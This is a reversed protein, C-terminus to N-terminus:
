EPLLGSMEEIMQRENKNFRSKLEPSALRAQRDTESMGRLQNLEQRIAAQRDPPQQSFKNFTKRLAQQREPPLHRFTDLQEKAVAQQEPTLQNYEQLQKRLKEARDPPLKSLAKQREEPSMRQFEDLPTKEAKSTQAAKPVKVPRETRAPPRRGMGMSRHGQALAPASCALFIGTLAVVFIAHRRLM